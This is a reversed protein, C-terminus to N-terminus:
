LGHTMEGMLKNPSILAKLAKYNCIASTTSSLSPYEFQVFTASTGFDLHIETVSLLKMNKRDNLSFFWSRGFWLHDIM